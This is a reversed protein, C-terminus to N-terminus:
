FINIEQGLGKLTVYRIGNTYLNNWSGPLATDAVLRYDGGAGEWRAYKLYLIM